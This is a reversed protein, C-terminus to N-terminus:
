EVEPQKSGWYAGVVGFILILAAIPPVSPTWIDQNHIVYYNLLAVAGFLTMLAGFMVYTKNM